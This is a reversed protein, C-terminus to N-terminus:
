GESWVEIGSVLSLVEFHKNQNKNIIEIYSYRVPAFYINLTGCVFASYIDGSSQLNGRGGAEELATGSAYWM